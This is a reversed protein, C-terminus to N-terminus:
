LNKAKPHPMDYTRYHLLPLEGNDVGRWDLAYVGPQTRAHPVVKHGHRTLGQWPASVVCMTRGNVFYGFKHRHAACVIRPPEEGNKVAEATEEVLSVSLQTAELAMRVSTGIHHRFVCRVGCADLTLRDFARKGTEENVEAQLVEGISTEMSHTHCETGKVVYVKAAKEAVPQLVKLAIGVHDATDSSMIQTTRHHVGETLDGNLVLAYPAGDAIREMWANARIWCTWLWEQWKNLSVPNGEVTVYDHPCLAMNSGGHIDSLVFVLRIDETSAKPPPRKPKPM